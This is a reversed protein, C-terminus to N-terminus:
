PTETFIFKGGKKTVTLTIDKKFPGKKSWKTLQSGGPGMVGLDVQKSSEPVQFSRKTAFRISGMKGGQIGYQLQPPVRGSGTKNIVTLTVAHASCAGLLLAVALFISKKM